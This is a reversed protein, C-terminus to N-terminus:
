NEHGSECHYVEHWEIHVKSYKENLRERIKQKEKKTKISTFCFLVFLALLHIFALSLLIQQQKNARQIIQDRKLSGPKKKDRQYLTIVCREGERTNKKEDIKDIRQPSTIIKRVKLHFYGGEITQGWAHSKEEVKKEWSVPKMVFLICDLLRFSRGRGKEFSVTEM